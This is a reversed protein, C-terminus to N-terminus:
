VRRRGRLPSHTNVVRRSAPTRPNLMEVAAEQYRSATDQALQAGATDGIAELVRRVVAALLLPHVERPFQLVCTEGALCVYDGVALNEGPYGSLASNLTVNGAAGTTVSAATKDDGLAFFPPEAQVVDFTDSTSWTSPVGVASTLVAGSIGSILACDSVAVLRSISRQYRMAVSGTATKPTPALAIGNGEFTWVYQSTYESGSTAMTGIDAIDVYPLPPGINGSTDVYHVSRLAAAAARKPIAYNSRSAALATATRALLYEERATLLVPTVTLDLEENAFDLINADTIAGDAAADPLQARRRVASVLDDSTYAM